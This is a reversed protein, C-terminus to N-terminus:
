PSFWLFGSSFADIELSISVGVSADPMGLWGNAVFSAM